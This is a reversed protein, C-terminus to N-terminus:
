PMCIRMRLVASCMHCKKPQTVWMCAFQLTYYSTIGMCAHPDRCIDGLLFHGHERLSMDSFNMCVAPKMLLSSVVNSTTLSLAESHCDSALLVATLPKQAGTLQFSHWVKLNWHGNGFQLQKHLEAHPRMSQWHFLTPKSSWGDGTMEAAASHALGPCQPILPMENKVAGNQGYKGGTQNMTDLHQHYWATNTHCLSWLATQWQRAAM